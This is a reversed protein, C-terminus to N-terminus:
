WTINEKTIARLLINLVTLAGATIEPTIKDAFFIAGVVAIVNAWITKSLYWKKNMTNDGKSIISLDLDVGKEADPTDKASAVIKGLGKVVVSWFGPALNGGWQILSGIKNNHKMWFLQIHDKISLTFKKISDTVKLYAPKKKDPKRIRMKGPDKIINM